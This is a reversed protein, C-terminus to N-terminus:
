AAAAQRHLRSRRGGARAGRCCPSSARWCACVHNSFDEDSDWQLVTEHITCQVDDPNLFRCPYRYYASWEGTQSLGVEIHDFNLLYQAHDLGRMNEVHFTHLPLHTCCPSTPCTACPSSRAEQLTLRRDPISPEVSM